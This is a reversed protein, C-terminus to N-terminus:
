EQIVIFVPGPKDVIQGGWVCKSSQLDKDYEKNSIKESCDPRLFKDSIAM